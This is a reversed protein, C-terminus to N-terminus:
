ALARLLDPAGVIALVRKFNYALASLSFECRVKELGKMLFHDQMM